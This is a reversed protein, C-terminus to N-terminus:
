TRLEGAFGWHSRPIGELIVWTEQRAAEGYVEGVASTLKEILVKTKDDDGLREEFTSVKILPM